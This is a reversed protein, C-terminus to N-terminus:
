SRRFVCWSDDIILQDSTNGSPAVAAITAQLASAPSLDGGLKLVSGNGTALTINVRESAAAPVTGGGWDSIFFVGDTSHVILGAFEEIHLTTVASDGIATAVHTGPDYAFVYDALANGASFPYAALALALVPISVGRVPPIGARVSPQSRM